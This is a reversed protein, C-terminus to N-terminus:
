SGPYKAFWETSYSVMGGQLMQTAFDDALEAVAARGELAVLWEGPLVSEGHLVGLINGCIAGTSDSDGSHNVALLLAQQFPSFGAYAGMGQGRPPAPPQEVLACYVAIALAEEAVWAGGLTEIKEPGPDGEDVLVLAARLARSTEEHGPYEALLKMSDVVAQRLPLGEVLLHILVAFAGAALYGTPHGHTFQSCEAALRFVERPDGGILGFPASRMVTGCGKSNSNIPGAEGLPAPNAAPARLGSMCANGPARQSYLWTQERLWGTRFFTDDGSPPAKHNQTDLWRLYANHIVSPVHAQGRTIVRVNARLLGEVTFLTMQTDDTILGTSGRWTHVFGTVGEPGHLDRIRAISEFEIPAGLADGIAGGLLCGRVRSRYVASGEASHDRM